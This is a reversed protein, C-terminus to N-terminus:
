LWSLDLCLDLVANSAVVLCGEDGLHICISYIVDDVFALLSSSAKAEKADQQEQKTQEKVEGM